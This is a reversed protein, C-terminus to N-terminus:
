RKELKVTYGDLSVKLASPQDFPIPLVARWQANDLDRFAAFVAFYRTDPKVDLTLSKETSPKLEMEQRFQVANGLISQDNDYLAFFDSTNFKDISALQYIRIVLPSARSEGDPNLAPGAELQLSLKVPPPPEAAKPAAVEETSACGLIITILFLSPILFLPKYKM